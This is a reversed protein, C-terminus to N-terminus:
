KYAKSTSASTLQIKVTWEGSNDFFVAPRNVSENIGLFLEGADRAPFTKESGIFFVAGTGIRGVLGGLPGGPLVSRLDTFTKLGDPTTFLGDTDMAVKGSAQVRLQDGKALTIGTATWPQKAPVHVTRDAPEAASLMWCILVSIAVGKNPIM